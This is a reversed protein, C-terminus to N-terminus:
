VPRGLFRYVLDMPLGIVNTPSGKIGPVFLGGANQIGYAGAKDLPDGSAVYWCIEPDTLKKFTVNTIRHGSRVRSGARAWVAVGTIVQHSRGSLSRLMLRAEGPGRPKGLIKKQLCVVTDAAM